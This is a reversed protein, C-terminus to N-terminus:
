RPGGRKQLRTILDNVEAVYPIVRTMFESGRHFAIARKLMMESPESNIGTLILEQQVVVIRFAEGSLSALMEGTKVKPVEWAAPWNEPVESSM